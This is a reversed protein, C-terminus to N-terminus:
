GIQWVENAQLIMVVGIDMNNDIIVGMDDSSVISGDNEM